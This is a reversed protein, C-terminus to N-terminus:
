LTMEFEFWKKSGHKLTSKGIYTFAARTYLPILEAHSVLLIRKADTCVSRAHDCYTELMKLAIGQRQRTRDVCVSHICISEGEPDHTHLSEEDLSVRNSRTGCIFGVLDYGEFYGMFLEACRKQRFILDDYTAAEEAPFGETELRYAEEIDTIKLPRVSGELPSMKGTSERGLTLYLRATNWYPFLSHTVSPVFEM